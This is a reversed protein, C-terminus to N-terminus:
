PNKFENFDIYLLYDSKNQQLILVMIRIAEMRVEKNLEQRLLTPIIDEFIHQTQAPRFGYSIDKLKKFSNEIETLKTKVTEFSKSAEIM